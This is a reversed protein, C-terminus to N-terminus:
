KIYKLEMLFSLMKETTLEYYKNDSRGYNFFGHGQERFPVVYCINGAAEMKDQFDTINEFPVTKDATGHFILTPPIKPIVHHAPSISEAKDGLRESGYGEPMTNIVPNFLVLANPKSSIKLNENSADFGPILATCAALHGGASGGAAVIKNKNVGLDKANEKVWKMASKADEVADFPTSNNRSAVRYNVAMAIMGRSALYHCHQEFQHVSGNKWGGGFFFVITPYKKRKKFGKPRIINIKLDFGDVTKYVKTEAGDLVDYPKDQAFSSFTITFFLLNLLIYLIGKM